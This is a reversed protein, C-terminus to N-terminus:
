GDRDNDPNDRVIGTRWRRNRMINEPPRLLTRERIDTRIEERTWSNTAPLRRSSPTAWRNSRITGDDNLFRASCQPPESRCRRLYNHLRTIAQVVRGTHRLPVELPRHLIPWQKMQMSRLTAPLCPPHLQHELGENRDHNLELVFHM